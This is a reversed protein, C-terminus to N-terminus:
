TPTDGELLQLWLCCSLRMRERLGRDQRGPLICDGAALRVPNWDGAPVFFLPLLLMSMDCLLERTLDCLRLQLRRECDACRVEIDGELQLFELQPRTDIQKRVGRASMMLRLMRDGGALQQPLLALWLLVIVDRLLDCTFDCDRPCPLM